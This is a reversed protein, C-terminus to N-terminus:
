FIQKKLKMHSFFLHGPLHRLLLSRCANPRDAALSCLLHGMDHPPPYGHRQNPKRKKWKLSELTIENQVFLTVLSMKIKRLDMAM